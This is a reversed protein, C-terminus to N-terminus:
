LMAKYKGTTYCVWPRFGQEMYIDHAIKINLDVDLIDADGWRRFHVSNLQFIGSDTSGNTNHGIANYRLGSECRAVALATNGDKGFTAMIKDIIYEKPGMVIATTEAAQVKPIIHLGSSKSPAKTPSQSPAPSVQPKNTPKPEIVHKKEIVIPSRLDVTNRDLWYGVGSFITLAVAFGIGFALGLEKM